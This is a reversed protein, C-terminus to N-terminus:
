IWPDKCCHLRQTASWLWFEPLMAVVIMKGGDVVKMLCEAGRWEESVVV